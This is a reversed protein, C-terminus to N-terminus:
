SNIRLIDYYRYDIKGTQTTQSGSSTSGGFLDLLEFVVGNTWGFGTQPIYEGGGGTEGAALM